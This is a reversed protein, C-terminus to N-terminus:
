GCARKVCARFITSVSGDSLSLSVTCSTQFQGEGAVELWRQNKWTSQGTAPRVGNTDIVCKILVSAWFLLKVVPGPRAILPTLVTM